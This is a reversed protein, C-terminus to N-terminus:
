RVLHATNVELEKALDMLAMFICAACDPCDSAPNQFNIGHSHATRLINLAHSGVAEDELNANMLMVVHSLLSQITKPRNFSNPNRIKKM